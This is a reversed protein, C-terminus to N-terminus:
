RDRRAVGPQADGFLMKSAMAEGAKPMFTGMANEPCNTIEGVLCREGNSYLDVRVFGFGRSLASAVELMEDLNSPKELHRSSRPYVFAFDLESWGADFLNRTHRLHRDVDVQILKPIGEYCFIKYDNVNDSDFVLPEVITKRRLTKYNAERTVDYHSTTFWRRIEQFDIAEGQRRLIVAGSLHTPKICCDSPYQYDIAEQFSNLVKLTPVNFHDGITASVFLKLFEKDSVFVRLPDTIESTTRIRYLADNFLPRNRPVRRHMRLFDLFAVFRDGGRTRPILHLGIRHLANLLRKM